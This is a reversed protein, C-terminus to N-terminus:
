NTKVWVTMLKAYQRVPEDHGTWIFAISDQKCYDEKEKTKDPEKCSPDVESNRKKDIKRDEATWGQFRFRWTVVDDSQEEQECQAWSGVGTKPVILIYTPEASSVGTVSHLISAFPREREAKDIQAPTIDAVCPHPGELRFSISEIKYKDTGAGEPKSSVSHWAGWDTGKGGSLLSTTVTCSLKHVGNAEIPTCAANMRPACVSLVCVLIIAKLM